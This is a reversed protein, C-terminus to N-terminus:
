SEVQFTFRLSVTRTTAARGRSGVEQWDEDEVVTEETKNGNVLKVEGKVERGKEAEVTKVIEEHLTELYFGLFEEADEQAGQQMAHFRYNHKLSSYILSPAFAPPYRDSDRQKPPPSLFEDLFHIRDM